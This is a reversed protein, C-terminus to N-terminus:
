DRPSRAARRFEVVAVVAGFVAIAAGVGVWGSARYEPLGPVVLGLLVLVVSVSAMVVSAWAVALHDFRPVVRAFRSMTGIVSLLGFSLGVAGAVVLGAIAVVAVLSLGSVVLAVHHRWSAGQTQEAYASWGTVALTIAVAVAIVAAVTGVIFALVGGFLVGLVVFGAALVLALAPLTWVEHQRTPTRLAWDPPPPPSSLAPTTVDDDDRTEVDGM